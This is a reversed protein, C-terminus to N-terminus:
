SANLLQSWTSFYINNSNKIFSYPVSLFQRTLAVWAYPAWCPEFKVNGPTHYILLGHYKAKHTKHIFLETQGCIFPQHLFEFLGIEQSISLEPVRPYILLRLFAISLKAYRSHWRFIQRFKQPQFIQLAHVNLDLWIEKPRLRFKVKKFADSPRCQARFINQLGFSTDRLLFVRYVCSFYM